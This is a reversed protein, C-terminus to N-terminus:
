AARELPMILCNPGGAGKAFESFDQVHLLLGEAELLRVARTNSAGVILEGNGLCIVNATDGDRFRIDLHRWADVTAAPVVDTCVLLTEPTAPMLVKDLHLVTEPLPVVVTEVGMPALYESLQRIGERNTRLSHGIFAVQGFLVVDGGDVTGPATIRGACPEGLGDLVSAMWAGEASRTPLGPSLRIYGAPTCLATDRTFVANPHGDPEPVDIVEAGFARLTDALRRHQHLARERDAVRPINHADASDVRYYAHAPTCVIVRTLPDAESILM